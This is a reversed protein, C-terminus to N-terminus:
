TTTTTTSSSSTTTTTTTSSSSTITTTTTTTTSTTAEALRVAAFAWGLDELDADQPNPSVLTLIDGVSFTTTSGCIFTAISAAVAFTITAFEVNNKKLSFVAEADAAIGSVMQSDEMDELFQIERPLPFRLLVDSAIPKGDYTGGIDYPGSSYAINHTHTNLNSTNTTIQSDLDSLPPNMDAAKYNTIGNEWPTHYNQTM